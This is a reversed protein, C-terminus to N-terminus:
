VRMSQPGEIADIVDCVSIQELTRALTYGRCPGRSSKILGSRVLDQVIEELFKKPVGQRKAIQTISCWKEPRQVSLYLVVRLGCDVRRPMQM